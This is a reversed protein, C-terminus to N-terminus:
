QVVIRAGERQAYGTYVPVKITVPGFQADKLRYIDTRAHSSPIAAIWTTSWEADGAPVTGFWVGKGGNSDGYTNFTSSGNSNFPTFYQLVTTGIAGASNWVYYYDIALNSSTSGGSAALDYVCYFGQSSFDYLCNADPNNYVAIGTGLGTTPDFTCSAPSLDGDANLCPVEEDVTPYTSSWPTPMAITYVPDLYGGSAPSGQGGCDLADGWAACCDTADQYYTCCSAPDAPQGDGWYADM